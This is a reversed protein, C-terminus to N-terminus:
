RVDLGRETRLRLLLAGPIRRVRTLDQNQDLHFTAFDEVPDPFSTAIADLAELSHTTAIVQVRLDRAAKTLWSFVKKLVGVHIGTEVEDILLLGGDQLAPLTSSLLVARRLADGFISLPAPGLKKHNLYISPRGGRFSAIRLDEIDEDIERIL